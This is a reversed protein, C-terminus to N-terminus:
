LKTSAFDASQHEASKSTGNSGAESEESDNWGIGLLLAESEM